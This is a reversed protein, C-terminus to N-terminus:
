LFKEKGCKLCRVCTGWFTKKCLTWHHFHIM